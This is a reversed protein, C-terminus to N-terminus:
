TFIPADTKRAFLLVGRAGGHNSFRVHVEHCGEACIIDLVRTVSYTNMQMIPATPARRRAINLLAHVGPIHLRAWYFVRNRKSMGSAYTLHFMAVGGPRLRQTLKRILVEGRVIPIHQLVIFTHVFDFSGHLASLDDDGRVLDVNKAGAAECNRRAESLMSPSVDVGVVQPCRAALPILLRGVGCGFDLARTPAFVVDLRDRSIAFM